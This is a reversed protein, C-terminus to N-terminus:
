SPFELEFPIPEEQFAEWELVIIELCDRCHGLAYFEPIWFDQGCRKCNM